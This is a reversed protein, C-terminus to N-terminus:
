QDRINRPTPNISAGCPGSEDRYNPLVDARDASPPNALIQISKKACPHATHLNKLVSFFRGLLTGTRDHAASDYGM